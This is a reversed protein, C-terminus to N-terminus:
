RLVTHYIVWAIAPVGGALLILWSFWTRDRVSIAVALLLCVLGVLVLHGLVSLLIALVVKSM